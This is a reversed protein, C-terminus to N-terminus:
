AKLVPTEPDENVIGITANFPIERRLGLSGKDEKERRHCVSLCVCVSFPISSSGERRERISGIISHVENTTALFGLGYPASIL